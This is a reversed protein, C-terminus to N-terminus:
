RERNQLSKSTSCIIADVLQGQLFYPDFSGLFTRESVITESGVKGAAPNVADRQASFVFALALTTKCIHNPRNWNHKLKKSPWSNKL